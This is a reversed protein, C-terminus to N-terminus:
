GYQAIFYSTNLHHVCWRWRYVIDVSLQTILPPTVVTIECRQIQAMVFCTSWWELCM